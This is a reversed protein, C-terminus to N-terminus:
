QCPVPLEVRTLGSKAPICIHMIGVSHRLRKKLELRLLLRFDPNTANKPGLQTLVFFGLNNKYPIGRGDSEEPPKIRNVIQIAVVVM